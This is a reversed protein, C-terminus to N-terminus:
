RTGRRSCSPITTSRRATRRSTARTTSARRRSISTSPTTAQGGRGAGVPAAAGALGAAVGDQRLPVAVDPGHGDDADRQAGGARERGGSRRPRQRRGRRQRGDRRRRRVRRARREAAHDGHGHHDDVGVARRVDGERARRRRHSGSPTLVGSSAGITAIQGLDITFSAPVSVGGATATFTATPAAHRVPGLADLQDARHRASREAHRGLRRASCARVTPSGARAATAPPAGTTATGPSFNSGGHSGCAAALGAVLLAVFLLFSVRPPRAPSM